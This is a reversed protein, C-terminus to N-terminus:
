DPLPQGSNALVSRQDTFLQNDARTMDRFAPPLVAKDPDDPDMPDWYPLSWTDDGIAQQVMQEFTLLYMRHWPLFYWSGHQCNCWLPDSTDVQGDPRTIGHIAALYRWGRRDQPKGTPPDLDRLRTVAQEYAVLGAPWVGENRTLTWVDM